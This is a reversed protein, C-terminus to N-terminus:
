GGWKISLSNLLENNDINAILKTPEFRLYQNELAKYGDSIPQLWEHAIITLKGDKIVPNKGLAMLIAKKTEIDGNIFAERANTAFIFTKETLELWKEAKHETEKLKINLEIIHKSLVDREKLYEEDTILERYRM